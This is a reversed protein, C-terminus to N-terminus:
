SSFSAPIIIVDGEPTFEGTVEVTGNQYIDCEEANFAWNPVQVTVTGPKGQFKATPPATPRPPGNQTINTINTSNNIYNAVLNSVYTALDITVNNNNIYTNQANMYTDGENIVDGANYVSSMNYVDGQNVTNNFISDGGFNNVTQNYNNQTTNLTTSFDNYTNDTFYSNYWESINTNNTTNNVSNNYNNYNSSDSSINQINNVNNVTHYTDGFLVDGGWVTGAPGGFAGGNAYGGGGGGGSSSGGMAGGGGLYLAGGGGGGMAGVGLGSWSGPPYGGYVDGYGNVYDTLTSGTRAPQSIASGLGPAASIVGGRPPPRSAAANISVPGNTRLGQICNAFAQLLAQTQQTGAPLALANAIAESQQTFM